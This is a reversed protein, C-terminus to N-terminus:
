CKCCVAARFRRKLEVGDKVAQRLGVNNIDLLILRPVEPKRCRSTEVAVVAFFEVLVCNGIAKRM